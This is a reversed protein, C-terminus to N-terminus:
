WEKKEYNTKIERSILSNLGQGALALEQMEQVKDAGPKNSGYLYQGGKNFRVRIFDAGCEYADVGSNGGKNEYKEM